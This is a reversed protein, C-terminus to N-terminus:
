DLKFKGKGCPCRGDYNDQSIIHCAECTEMGCITCRGVVTPSCLRGMAGSAWGGYVCM